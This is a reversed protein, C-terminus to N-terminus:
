FTSRIKFTGRKLQYLIRTLLLFWVILLIFFFVGSDSEPEPPATEEPDQYAPEEEIPEFPSVTIIGLIIPIIVLAAIQFVMVINLIKL